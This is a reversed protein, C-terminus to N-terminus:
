GCNHYGSPHERRNRRPYANGGQPYRDFWPKPGTNGLPTKRTRLGLLKANSIRVAKDVITKREHTKEIDEDTDIKVSSKRRHWMGDNRKGM